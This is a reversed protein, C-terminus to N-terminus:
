DLVVFNLTLCYYHVLLLCSLNHRVKLELQGYLKHQLIFSGIKIKTTCSNGLTDKLCNTVNQKVETIGDVSIESNSLVRSAAVLILRIVPKILNEYDKISKM